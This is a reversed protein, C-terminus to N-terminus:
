ERFSFYQGRFLHHTQAESGEVDRRPIEPRHKEPGLVWIPGRTKIPIEPDRTKSPQTGEFISTLQTRPIYIYTPHPGKGTVTTFLPKYPNGM